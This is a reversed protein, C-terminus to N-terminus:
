SRGATATIKSVAARSWHRDTTKYRAPCHLGVYRQLDGFEHVVLGARWDGIEPVLGAVCHAFARTLLGPGTSLWLTDTDGRNMAQSVMALACAVVPHNPAAGILDNAISGYNEQYLMLATGAPALTEISGLCRDDADVYLGGEACLYALRFIDARQAPHRARAFARVVDIPFRRMVFSKASEDDFLQYDFHPNRERWSQMLRRVDAPPEGSDWFQVIRRPIPRSAEDGGSPDLLGAQRLAIALLMAPATQGPNQRVLERLRDLRQPAPLARAERLARAVDRDLAFEDIIQGLHHQSVNLSQGRLM